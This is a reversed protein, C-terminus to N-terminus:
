TIIRHFLAHQKATDTIPLNVICVLAGLAAAYCGWCHVSARGIPVSFSGGQCGELIIASGTSLHLGLKALGAAMLLFGLLLSYERGM